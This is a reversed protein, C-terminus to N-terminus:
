NTPLEWSKVINAFTGLNDIIRLEGLKNQIINLTQEDMKNQSWETIELWQQIDPLKQNFTEALEVDIGPIKKFDSTVDNIIKLMKQLLHAHNEIANLSAAIVFCPWPTPVEAIRRFIGHDVLPKTMFKEWMFYDAAGSNLAEVAGEITHVTEFKLNGTEWGMNGAFVYAMLQSGSGPRSIAAVGDELDEPKAFPSNNVVHVGWVLPTEVYKQLIRSPNGAIIDKVIGESLIVAVDADGNRLMQCMKGTGEPVDTWQLDIGAKAFDGNSIAMRWPLNFHEPVGVIKLPTM